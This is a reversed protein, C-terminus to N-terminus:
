RLAPRSAGALDVVPATGPRVAELGEFAGGNLSSCVSQALPAQAGGAHSVIYRRKMIRGHCAMPVNAGDLPRRRSCFLYWRRHQDQAAEVMGLNGPGARERDAIEIAHVAAVL